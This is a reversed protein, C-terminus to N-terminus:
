SQTPMHTRRLTTRRGALMDHEIRRPHTRLYHWANFVVRVAFAQTLQEADLREPWVPLRRLIPLDDAFPKPLHMRGHSLATEFFEM